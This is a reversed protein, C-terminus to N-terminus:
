SDLQLAVDAHDISAIPITLFFGTKYYIFKNCSNKECSRSVIDGLSHTVIRASM